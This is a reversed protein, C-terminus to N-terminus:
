AVLNVNRSSFIGPPPSLSNWPAAGVTEEELESQGQFHGPSGGAQGDSTNQPSGNAGGGASGDQQVIFEGVQVNDNQLLQRLQPLAEELAKHSVQSSAHLVVDVRDGNMTLHLKVDGLEPPDLRIQLEHDGNKIAQRLADLVQEPVPPASTHATLAADGSAQATANEALPGPGATPGAPTIVPSAQTSQVATAAPATAPAQAGPTAATAPAAAETGAAASVPASPGSPQPSSSGQSAPASGPGAGAKAAAGKLAEVDPSEEKETESKALADFESLNIGRGSSRKFASRTEEAQEVDEHTEGPQESSTQAGKQIEEASRKETAEAHNPRAAQETRAHNENHSEPKTLESKETNRETAMERSEPQNRERTASLDAERRHPTTGLGSQGRPGESDMRGEGPKPLANPTPAAREPLLSLLDPVILLPQLYRLPRQKEEQMEQEVLEDFGRHGEADTPVSRKPGSNNEGTPPGLLELLNLSAAAFSM